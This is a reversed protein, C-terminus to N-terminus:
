CANYLLVGVSYGLLIASQLTIPRSVCCNHVSCGLLHPQCMPDVNAGDIIYLTHIKLCERTRTLKKFM